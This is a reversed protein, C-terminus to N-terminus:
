PKTTGSHHPCQPAGSAARPFLQIVFRKIREKDPAQPKHPYFGKQTLSQSTIILQKALTCHIEKLNIEVLLASIVTCVASSLSFRALSITVFLPFSYCCLFFVWCSFNVSILGRKSKLSNSTPIQKKRRQFVKQLFAIGPVVKRCHIHPCQSVSNRQANGRDRTDVM